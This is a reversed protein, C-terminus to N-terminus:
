SRIEVVATEPNGEALPGLLCDEGIIEKMAPYAVDDFNTVFSNVIVHIATVVVAAITLWGHPVRFAKVVAMLPNVRQVTYPATYIWPQGSSNLVLDLDRLGWIMADVITETSLNWNPRYGFFYQDVRGTATRATSSSWLERRIDEKEYGLRSRVANMVGNLFTIQDYKNMMDPRFPLTRLKVGSESQVYTSLDVAAFTGNQSYIWFTTRGAGYEVSVEILDTAGLSLLVAAPKVCKLVKGSRFIGRTPVFFDDCHENFRDQARPMPTGDVAAVVPDFNQEAYYEKRSQTGAIITAFEAVFLVALALIPWLIRRVSILTM